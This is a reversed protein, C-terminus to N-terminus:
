WPHMAYRCTASTLVIPPWMCAGKALKWCCCVFRSSLVEQPFHDILRARYADLGAPIKFELGPFRLTDYGDQDMPVFEVDNIGVSRLLRDFTGGEHCDGIYHLGVDFKYKGKRSFQTACGGAVYHSDFMAVKYGRTALTAGCVLGASGCGVIAVDATEPPEAHVRRQGTAVESSLTALGRSAFQRAHFGSRTLM